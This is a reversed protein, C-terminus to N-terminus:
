RLSEGSFTDPLPPNSIFRILQDRVMMYVTKNKTDNATKIGTRFKSARDREDGSRTFSNDPNPIIGLPKEKM